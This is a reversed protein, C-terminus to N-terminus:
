LYNGNENSGVTYITKNDAGRVKRVKLTELEELTFDFTNIKESYSFNILLFIIFVSQFILKM